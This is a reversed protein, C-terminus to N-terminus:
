SLRDKPAALNFKASAASTFVPRGECVNQVAASRCRIAGLRLYAVPLPDGHRGVSRVRKSFVAIGLIFQQSRGIM